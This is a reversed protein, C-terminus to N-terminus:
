TFYIRGQVHLIRSYSKNVQRFSLTVYVRCYIHEGNFMPIGTLQGEMEGRSIGPWHLQRVQRRSSAAPQSSRFRKPQNQRIRGHEM